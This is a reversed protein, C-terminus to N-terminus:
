RAATRSHSRSKERARIRGVRPCTASAERGEKWVEGSLDKLEGPVRGPVVLLRSDDRSVKLEGDSVVLLEVLEETV